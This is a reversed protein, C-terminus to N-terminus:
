LYVFDKARFFLIFALLVSIGDLPAARTASHDLIPRGSCSIRARWDRTWSSGVHRPAVGGVRCLEQPQELPGAIVSAQSVCSSFGGLCSSFGGCGPFGAGCRPTVATLLRHEVVLPYSGRAVVLSFVEM